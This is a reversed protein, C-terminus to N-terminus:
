LREDGRLYEQLKVSVTAATLNGERDYREGKVSHSVVSWRYKGYAHDGIVLTVPVGRREYDWIRGLEAWVDAGLYASLYISFSLQDPELGTFETLAHELHRSHVAWGASGSWQMDKITQVTESSVEFVVEGLAGIVAM